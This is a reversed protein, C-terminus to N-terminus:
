SWPLFRCGVYIISVFCLSYNFLWAITNDGAVRMKSRRFVRIINAYCYSMVASTVGQTCLFLMVNYRLNYKWDFSCDWQYMNYGMRGWGALSPIMLISGYVWSFACLGLCIRWSLLHKKQPHAIAIYRSVAILGMTILSVSASDVIVFGILMCGVHGYRMQGNRIMTALSTTSSLLFILDGIALNVIFINSPTRLQKSTLYVFIIIGNGTIGFAMVATVFLKVFVPPTVEPTHGDVTALWTVTEIETETETETEYVSSM